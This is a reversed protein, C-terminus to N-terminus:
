LKEKLKNLILELQAVNALLSADLYHVDIANQEIIVNEAFKVLDELISQCIKIMFKNKKILDENDCLISILKELGYALEKFEISANFFRIFLSIIDICKNLYNPNEQDLHHIEEIIEKLDETLEEDIFDEQMFCFASIKKEGILHMNNINDDIEESDLEFFEYEKNFDLFEEKSFKFLTVNKNIFSIKYTYINDKSKFILKKTPKINTTMYVGNDGKEIIIDIKNKLNKTIMNIFKVVTIPNAKLQNLISILSVVDVESSITMKEIFEINDDNILSAIKYM